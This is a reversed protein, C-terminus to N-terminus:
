PPESPQGPQGPQGSPAPEAPEAPQASGPEANRRATMRELRELFVEMVRRYLADGVAADEEGTELTPNDNVEMVYVRGAREKLDVGYLGDGMLNAARLATAVIPRPVADVPVAEVRGYRRRGRTEQRVIQWHGAAMHYRCAYLPKRDLVGIRWDFATPLFEQAILLDSSALLRQAIEQFGAADEARFVGQSFASDPMKLVCPFGLAEGAAALNDRHVVVTKPMPIRARTLREALFVKNTCRVISDPDDIVVLGEAAARRAFRYSHHDVRTTERLFLADYEGIAGFDDPGIVDAAIGLEQAAKVFRQIAMRDSPPNEEAPNVLIALDYRSPSRRPTRHRGAFYDTAAELVFDHHEPPIDKAAILRLSKIEWRGTRISRAFWARLLPAPFLNFLQLALRRYRKAVNRGFYISLTFTDSALTSFSKEILEELEESQSRILSRTKLDQITTVSPLPRHGRATALLSVYYGLSQYRYSRCLNFLKAGRLGSYRPDALYTRAPVLEVGPLELPWDEPRDVVLLISM